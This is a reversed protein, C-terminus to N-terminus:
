WRRYSSDFGDDDRKNYNSSRDQNYNNQRRQRREHIEESRNNDLNTEFNIENEPTEFNGFKGRALRMSDQFVNVFGNKLVLGKEEEMLDIDDNWVTLIISGTEDAVVVDCLRHTEDPNNRNGVEREEGKEVIKFSINFKNQYPKLEKIKVDTTEINYSM